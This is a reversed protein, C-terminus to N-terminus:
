RFEQKKHYHMKNLDRILWILIDLLLEMSVNTTKRLRLILTTTWPKGRPFELMNCYEISFHMIVYANVKLPHYTLKFFIAGVSIPCHVLARSIKMMYM